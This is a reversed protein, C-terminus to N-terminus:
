RMNQEKGSYQISKFQSGRAENSNKVSPADARTSIGENKFKPQTTKTDAM